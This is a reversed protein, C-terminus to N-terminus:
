ASKFGLRDGAFAISFYSLLSAGIIAEDAAIAPIGRGAPDALTVRVSRREIDGLRFDPMEVVRTVLPKGAMGRFTKEEHVAFRDWLGQRRVIGANLFLETEFGTDLMASLALGDISLPCVIRPALDLRRVVEARVTAYGRWDPRNGPHLRIERAGYDLESPCTTLFGGSLLGDYTVLGPIASLRTRPEHLAGGFVVGHAEYDALSLRGDAGIGPRHGVRKLRLPAVLDRRIASVEAGTDVIFRLRRGDIVAGIVALGSETVEIPLRVVDGALAPRALALGSLGGSLVTRRTLM